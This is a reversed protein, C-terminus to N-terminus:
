RAQPWARSFTGASPPSIMGGDFAARPTHMGMHGMLRVSILSSRASPAPCDHYLQAGVHVLFGQLRLQRLVQARVGLAEQGQRAIGTLPELDRRAQRDMAQGVDRALRRTHM